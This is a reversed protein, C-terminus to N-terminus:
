APGDERPFRVGNLPRGPRQNSKESLGGSMTTALREMPAPYSGSRTVRRAAGARSKCKAVM